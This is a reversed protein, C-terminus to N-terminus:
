AAHAHDMREAQLQFAIEGADPTVGNERLLEPVVIKLKDILAEITDAGTALGPVDESTAVWVSAEADWEAKIHYIM